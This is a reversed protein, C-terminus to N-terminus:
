PISCPTLSCAALFGSISAECHLLSGAPSKQFRLTLDTGPNAYLRVASTVSHHRGLGGLGVPGLINLDHPFFFQSPLGGGSAPIEITSRVATTTTETGCNASYTEIVLLKGFPVSLTESCFNGSFSLCLHYDNFPEKAPSGVNLIPVPNIPTNGITVPGDVGVNWSGSQSSQVRPSNAVNVAPTNVVEVLLVGADQAVARGAPTLTVLLGGLMITGAGILSKRFRLM